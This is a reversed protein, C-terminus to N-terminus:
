VMAKHTTFWMKVVCLTMNYKRLKAPLHFIHLIFYLIGM